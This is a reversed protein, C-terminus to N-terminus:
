RECWTRVKSSGGIENGSHHKGFNAKVRYSQNDYVVEDYTQIDLMEFIRVDSHIRVKSQVLHLCKFRGNAGHAFRLVAYMIMRRIISELFRKNAIVIIGIDM